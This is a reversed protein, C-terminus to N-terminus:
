PWKGKPCKTIKLPLKAKLFCGCANCRGLDKEKRQTNHECDICAEYRQERIQPTALILNAM